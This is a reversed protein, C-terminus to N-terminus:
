ARDDRPDREPERPVALRLWTELSNEQGDEQLARVAVPNASKVPLPWEPVQEALRARVLEGAELLYAAWQNPPRDVVERYDLPMAARINRRAEQAGAQRILQHVRKALLELYRSKTLEQGLPALVATFAPISEPPAWAVMPM